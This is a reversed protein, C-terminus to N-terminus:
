TGVIIVKKLQLLKKEELPIISTEEFSSLLDEKQGEAPTVVDEYSIGPMFKSSKRKVPFLAEKLDSFFRGVKSQSRIKCLHAVHTRAMRAYSNYLDLLKQRSTWSEACKKKIELLTEPSFGRYEGASIEALRRLSDATYFKEAYILYPIAEEGKGKNLLHSAKSCADEARSLEKLSLPLHHETFLENVKCPKVAEEVTKVYPAESHPIRENSYARFSFITIIV